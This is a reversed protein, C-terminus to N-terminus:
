MGLVFAMDADSLTSHLCLCDIVLVCDVNGPYFARVVTRILQTALDAM